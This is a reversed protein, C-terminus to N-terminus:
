NVIEDIEKIANFHEWIICNACLPSKDKCEKGYSKTIEKKLQKLIAKMYKNYWLLFSLGNRFQRTSSYEAWRRYAEVLGFYSYM